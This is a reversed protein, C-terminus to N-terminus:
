LPPWGERNAVQEKDAEDKLTGVPAKLAEIAGIWAEEQPREDAALQFQNLARNRDGETWAVYGMLARATEGAKTSDVIEQRFQRLFEDYQTQSENWMEVRFPHNLVHPHQMCLERIMQAAKHYRRLLLAAQILGVRPEWQDPDFTHAISFSTKAETLDRKRLRDQGAALRNAYSSEAWVKLEKGQTNTVRTDTAPREELGIEPVPAYPLDRTKGGSALIDLVTKRPRPPAGGYGYDAM